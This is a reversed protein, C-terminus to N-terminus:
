KLSSPLTAEGGLGEGVEKSQLSFLPKLVSAFKQFDGETFNLSALSLLEAPRTM